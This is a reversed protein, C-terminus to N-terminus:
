LFWFYVILFANTTLLTYFGTRFSCKGKIFFLIFYFKIRIKTFATPNTSFLAGCSCNFHNFVLILLLEFIFGFVVYISIIFRKKEPMILEAGIYMGFVIYLPVWMLSIVGFMGYPIVVNKGTLLIVFFDIMNGLWCLGACIITLGVYFLLKVESKKAEYICFFGLMIGFIVVVSATIGSLWGILSLVM